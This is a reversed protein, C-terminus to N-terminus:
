PQCCPGGTYFVALQINLEKCHDQHEEIETELIPGWNHSENHIEEGNDTMNCWHDVMVAHASLKKDCFLHRRVKLGCVDMTLAGTARGAYAHMGLWLCKHVDSHIEGIDTLRAQTPGTQTREMFRDDSTM